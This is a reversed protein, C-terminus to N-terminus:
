IAGAAMMKDAMHATKGITVAETYDVEVYVQTCRTDGTGGHTLRIGAQLATLDSWTWDVGTQPNTNYQTSYTTYSIPAAIVSGQYETGGTKILTYGAGPTDASWRIRMYIKIFNITGSGAPDSLTYLDRDDTYSLVCTVDEDPSAEDVLSWHAALNPFEAPILTVDGAGNPRLYETTM